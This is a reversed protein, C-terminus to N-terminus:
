IMNMSLSIRVTIFSIWYSFLPEPLPLTLRFIGKRRSKLHGNFQKEKENWSNNINFAQYKGDAYLNSWKLGQIEQPRTGTELAILIAIKTTWHSVSSNKLQRYIEIKLRTIEDNTFIYKKVPLVMEDRRFFKSLAETPVQNTTLGYDQLAFFFVRLNQLQRAITSHPAVTTKHIRVYERAFDRIDKEKVNRIKKKGFYQSVLKVTYKWNNYTTISSWRRSNYEEEVYNNLAKTLPQNLVDDALNKRKRYDVWMKQELTKAESRSATQTVRSPISMTKGTESDTSQIRVRYKGENKGSTNKTISM